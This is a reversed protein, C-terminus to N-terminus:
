VMRVTLDTLLVHLLGKADPTGGRRPQQLLQLGGAEDGAARDEPICAELLHYERRLRLLQMLLDLLPQVLHLLQQGLADAVLLQFLEHRGHLFQFLIEASGGARRPPKEKELVTELSVTLM